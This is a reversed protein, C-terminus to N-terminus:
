KRCTEYNKKFFDVTKRIGDEISIFKIEPLLEKLKSNDVTKKFQGDSYSTNFVIDKEFYYKAEKYDNQNFFKIGQNFYDLNAAYSASVFICLFISIFFKHYKKM